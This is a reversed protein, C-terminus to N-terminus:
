QKGGFDKLFRWFLYMALMEVLVFCFYGTRFYRKSIFIEVMFSGYFSALILYFDFAKSLGIAKEPLFLAFLTLFLTSISSIIFIASKPCFIGGLLVQISGLNLLPKVM